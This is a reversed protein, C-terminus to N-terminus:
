YVGDRTLVVISHNSTSYHNILFTRSSNAGRFGLAGGKYKMYINEKSQTTRVVITYIQELM